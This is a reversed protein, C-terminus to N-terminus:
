FLAKGYVCNKNEGSDYSKEVGLYGTRAIFRIGETSRRSKRFSGITAASPFTREAASGEFASRCFDVGVCDDVGRRRMDAESFREPDTSHCHHASLLRSRKSRITVAGAASVTSHCGGRGWDSLTWEPFGRLGISAADTSPQRYIQYHRKGATQRASPAMTVLTM